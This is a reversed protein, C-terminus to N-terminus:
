SEGGLDAELDAKEQFCQLLATSSYAYEFPAAQNAIVRLILRLIPRRNRAAVYVTCVLYRALYCVRPNIKGASKRRFIPLIYVCHFHHGYAPADSRTEM